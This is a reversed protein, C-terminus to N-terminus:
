VLIMDSYSVALYDEKKIDFFDAYYNCQNTLKELGIADDTDIAEVELFTGLGAVQDFHFKVNDIFYIRRRKDVIVKVGQTAVLIEKLTRDPEHQYLLIHSQKSGPTNEREYYILANEINGERLKLRGKVTNFYTDVQHDEGKFFPNLEKLKNELLALDNARAKFEVNLHAM